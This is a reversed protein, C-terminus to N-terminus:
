CTLHWVQGRPDRTDPRAEVLDHETLTALARQISRRSQDTAEALATVSAGDVETLIKYVLKTTASESALAAPLKPVDDPDTPTSSM